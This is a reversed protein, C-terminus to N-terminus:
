APGASRQIRKEKMAFYKDVVNDYEERTFGKQEPYKSNIMLIFETMTLSGAEERGMGFHSRAANIYEVARFESTAPKSQNRQLQRVKARGIVGHTILSSAILMIDKLEM